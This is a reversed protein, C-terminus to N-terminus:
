NKGSRINASCLPEVALGEDEMQELIVQALAVDASKIGPGSSPAVSVFEDDQTRTSVEENLELIFKELAPTDPLSTM